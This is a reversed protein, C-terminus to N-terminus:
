DIIAIIASNKNKCLQSMATQTLIRCPRVSSVPAADAPRPSLQCVTRRRPLLAGRDGNHVGRHVPPVSRLAPLLERGRRLDCHPPIRAQGRKHGEFRRLARRMDHKGPGRKGCQMRYVRDRGCVGAGSWRSFPSYSFAAAEKALNLLQRDNM